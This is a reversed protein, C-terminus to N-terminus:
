NPSGGSPLPTAVAGDLVQGSPSPHSAIATVTAARSAPGGIGSPSANKGEGSAPTDAVGAEDIEREVAKEACAARSQSRTRRVDQAMEIPGGAGGSEGRRRCSPM